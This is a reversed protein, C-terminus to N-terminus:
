RVFLFPEIAELKKAGIGSVNILDAVRKFRGNQNRYQIIRESTSPGIGPLTQLEAASANNLDIQPNNPSNRTSRQNRATTNVGAQMGQFAVTGLAEGTSARNRDDGKQPVHLHDGDQLHAAMNIAVVDAALALGGAADVLQFVRAGEPLRYVGPNQVSGTVYLVWRDDVETQKIEFQYNHQDIERVISARNASSTASGTEALSQYLEQISSTTDGTRNIAGQDSSKPFFYVLSGAILFFVMGVAYFLATKTKDSLKMFM